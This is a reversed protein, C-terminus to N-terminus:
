FRSLKNVNWKRYNNFEMRIGFCQSNLILIEVCDSVVIAIVTEFICRHIEM